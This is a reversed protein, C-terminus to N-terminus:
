GASRDHAATARGAAKAAKAAKAANATRTTKAARASRTSRETRATQATQASTAPGASGASRTSTTARTSRSATGGGAERAGVAAKTKRVTPSAVGKTAAKTTARAARAATGGLAVAKGKPAPATVTAVHGDHSTDGTRDRPRPQTLWAVAAGTVAVPWEVVGALGLVGAGTYVVFRRGRPSVAGVRDLAGGAVRTVSGGGPVKRLVSAATRLPFPPSSSKAEAM